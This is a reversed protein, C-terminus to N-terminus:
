SSDGSSSAFQCVHDVSFSEFFRLSVRVIPRLLGIAVSCPDPRVLDPFTSEHRRLIAGAIEQGACAGIVSVRLSTGTTLREITTAAVLVLTLEFLRQEPLDAPLQPLDRSLV